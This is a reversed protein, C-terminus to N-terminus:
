RRRKKRFQGPLQKQTAWGKSKDGKADDNALVHQKAHAFVNSQVADDVGSADLLFDDDDDNTNTIPFSTTKVKQAALARLSTATAMTETELAGNDSIVGCFAGDDTGNESRSKSLDGDVDNDEQDSGDGSRSSSDSDSSSSNDDCPLLRKSVLSPKCPDAEKEDSHSSHDASSDDGFKHAQTSSAHILTVNRNSTELEGELREQEQMLRKELDTSIQFRGDVVPVLQNQEHSPIIVAFTSRELQTSWTTLHHVREYQSPHIWPVQKMQRPRINSTKVPIDTATEESSMKSAHLRELVCQRQSAMKYLLRNNMVHRRAQSGNQYISVYSTVDLPYHAIYVQDLALKFLEHHIKQLESSSKMPLNSELQQLQKIWQKYFRTTRQRDVFRTKHSKRANEREKASMHSLSIQEQLTDIKQQVEMMQENVTDDNPPEGGNSQSLESMKKQQLRQLGRLQQKLSGGGSSKKSGEHHRKSHISKGRRWPKFKKGYQSASNQSKSLAAGDNVANSGSIGTSFSPAKVM